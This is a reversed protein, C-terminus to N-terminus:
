FVWVRQPVTKTNFWSCMPMLCLIFSCSPAFSPFRPWNNSFRLVSNPKPDSRTTTLPGTLNQAFECGIKCNAVNYRRKIKPFTSNVNVCHLLSSRSAPLLHPVRCTQHRNKNRNAPWRKFNALTIDDDGRRITATGRAGRSVIEVRGLVVDRM